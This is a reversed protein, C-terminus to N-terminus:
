VSEGYFAGLLTVDDDDVYGNYDADGSVWYPKWVGPQLTANVITVDNDHTTGDMDADATVTYRILLASSDVSQGLFSPLVGFPMAENLGYAVSRSEAPAAAATSSTIGWGTWTATGIGVGGRGSIIWARTQMALVDKQSDSMTPAYDVILGNNTLDVTGGQVINLSKVAVAKHPTAALVTAVAGAGVDLAALNQTSTSSFDVSSPEWGAMERVGVSWNIGNTVAPDGTNTEFVTKGEENIFRVPETKPSVSTIRFTGSGFKRLAPTPDSLDRVLTVVGSVFGGITAGGVTVSVPINTGTTNNAVITALGELILNPATGSIKSTRVVTDNEVVTGSPGITLQNIHHDLGVALPAFELQGGEAIVDLRSETASGSDV